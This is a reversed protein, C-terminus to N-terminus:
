LVAELEELPVWMDLAQVRLQPGPHLLALADQADGHLFRRQKVAPQLEVVVLRRGDAGLLPQRSEFVGVQSSQTIVQAKLVPSRAADIRDQVEAIGEREIGVIRREDRLVAPEVERHLLLRE